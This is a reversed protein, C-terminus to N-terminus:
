RRKDWDLSGEPAKVFGGKEPHSGSLGDCLVNWQLVRLRKNGDHSVGADDDGSSTSRRAVHASDPAAKGAAAGGDDIADPLSDEWRRAVLPPWKLSQVAVRVEDRLPFPRGHGTPEVHQQDGSVDQAHM